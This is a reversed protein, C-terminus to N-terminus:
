VAGCVYGPAIKVSLVEDFVKRQTASEFVASQRMRSSRLQLVIDSENGVNFKDTDYLDFGSTTNYYGPGPADAGSALELKRECAQLITKFLQFHFGVVFIFAQHNDLM